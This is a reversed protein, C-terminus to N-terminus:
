YLCQVLEALLLLVVVVAVAAMGRVLARKPPDFHYELGSDM